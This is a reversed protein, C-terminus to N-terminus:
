SSPKDSKRRIEFLHVTEGTGTLRSRRHIARNDAIYLGNTDLIATLHVVSRRGSGSLVNAYQLLIAGGPKLHAPASKMFGEMV